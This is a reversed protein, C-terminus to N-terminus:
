CRDRHNKKEEKNNSLASFQNYIMALDFKGVYITKNKNTKEFETETTKSRNKWWM